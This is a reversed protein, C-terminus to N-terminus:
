FVCFSKKKSRVKVKQGM